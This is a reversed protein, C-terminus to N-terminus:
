VLGYDDMSWGHFDDEQSVEEVTGDINYGFNKVLEEKEIDKNIEEWSKAPTYNSQVVFESPVKGGYTNWPYDIQEEPPMLPIPESKYTIPPRNINIGGGKLFRDQKGYAQDLATTKLLQALPDGGGYQINRGDLPFPNGLEAGMIASGFAKGKAINETRQVNEIATPTKTPTIGLAEKGVQEAISLIDTMPVTTDRSELLAQSTSSPSSSILSPDPDIGEIGMLGMEKAADIQKQSYGLQPNYTTPGDFLGGILGGIKEPIGAIKEPISALDKGLNKVAQEPDTSLLGVKVNGRVKNYLNKTERNISELEPDSDEVSIDANLLALTKDIHEVASNKNAAIAANSLLGLGPIGKTVAGLLDLGYSIINGQTSNKFGTTAVNAIEQPTLFNFNIPEPFNPDPEGLNGEPPHFVEKPKKGLSDFIAKSQHLLGNSPSTKPNSSLFGQGTLWEALWDPVDGGMLGSVAM